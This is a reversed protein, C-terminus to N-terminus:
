HRPERLTDVRVVQLRGGRREWVTVTYHTLHSPPSEAFDGAEARVLTWRGDAWCYEGDHYIGGGMNWHSSVCPRGAIPRIRGEGTLVTDKVFRGRAPQYMFVDFAENGTAGATTLVKLDMWGDRNLDVGQFFAHGRSPASAADDIALVQVPVGRRAGGYVRVSVPQGYEPDASLVMRVPARGRRLTCRYTPNGRIDEAYRWRGTDAPPHAAPRDTRRCGVPQAAGQAAVRTGPRHGDCLAAVVLVTALHRM